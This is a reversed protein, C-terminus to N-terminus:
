VEQGDSPRDTKRHVSRDTQVVAAAATSAHLLQGAMPLPPLPHVIWCLEPERSDSVVLVVMLELLCSAAGRVSFAGGIM